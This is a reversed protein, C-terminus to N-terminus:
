GPIGAGAQDDPKHSKASYRRAKAWDAESEPMKMIARIELNALTLNFFSSFTEATKMHRRRLMAFVSEKEKMKNWPKESKENDTGERDTPTEDRRGDEDKDKGDTKTRDQGTRTRGQGDKDTRDPGARRRGEATRGDSPRFLGDRNPATM